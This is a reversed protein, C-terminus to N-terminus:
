TAKASSRLLQRRSSSALCFLRSVIICRWMFDYWKHLNAAVFLNLEVPYGSLDTPTLRKLIAERNCDRRAAALRRRVLSLISDALM